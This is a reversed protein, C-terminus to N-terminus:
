MVNFVRAATELVREPTFPKEIYGTLNYKAMSEITKESVGKGTIFVVPLHPHLERIKKLTEYGNLNPMQLDLFVLGYLNRRVKKLADEGDYAFDISFGGAKSLIAGLAACIIEEDDVVLVNRLNLKRYAGIMEATISNANTRIAQSLAWDAIKQAISPRGKSFTFIQDIATETFPAVGTGGVKEIQARIFLRIGNGDLSSDKSFVRYAEDSLFPNGSWGVKELWLKKRESEPLKSEMALAADTRSPGGIKRFLMYVFILLFLFLLSAGGAMMIYERKEKELRATKQIQAIKLKHDIDALYTAVETNKPDLFLAVRFYAGAETFNNRNFDDKGAILNKKLLGAKTDETMEPGPETTSKSIIKYLKKLMEEDGALKAKSIVSPSATPKISEKLSINSVTEATSKVTLTTIALVGVNFVDTMGEFINGSVDVASLKASYLGKSFDVPVQWVGRWVNSRRDQMLSIISGDPMTATIQSTDVPADVIVHVFDGPLYNRADVSQQSFVSPPKVLSYSASFVICSLM